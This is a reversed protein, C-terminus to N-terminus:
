ALRRLVAGARELEGPTAGRPDLWLAKDQMRGIISLDFNRLVESLLGADKTFVACRTEIGIGPAAGSGVETLSPRVEGGLAEAEAEVQALPRLMSEWFPIERWRGLRYLDLTAALAALTLKDVRFARAFPRKRVEAIAEAQGLLIGAQPGGLLKDGSICVLDAGSAVVQPTPMEYPLGTERWDVLLGHGLDIVTRVGAERAAGVWETYSPSETFGTIRYNSPHCRLWATAGEVSQYDSIRTRNTCGVEALEVGSQAMVEPLRFAGGIEIMEGRSVAVRGGEAVANLALMLAAACNNVVYAAPAGTLECLRNEVHNQRDGRQGTEIDFEVAVAGSARVLAAQAEPHLRARGLGTHLLVGSLNIVEPLPAIWRWALLVHMAVQDLDYIQQTRCRDLALHIADKRLAEPIGQVDPHAMLEHVSPPYGKDVSHM